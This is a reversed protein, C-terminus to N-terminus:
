LNKNESPATVSLPVATISTILGATVILTVGPGPGPLDVAGILVAEHAAGPGLADEPLLRDYSFNLVECNDLCYELLIEIDNM